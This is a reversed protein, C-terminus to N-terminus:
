DKIVDGSASRRRDEIPTPIPVMIQKNPNLSNVLEEAKARPLGFYNTIFTAIKMTVAKSVMREFQSFHTTDIEGEITAQSVMHAQTLGAQAAFVLPQIDRLLFERVKDIQKGITPPLQAKYKETRKRVMEDIFELESQEQVSETKLKEVQADFSKTPRYFFRSKHKPLESDRIFDPNVELVGNGIVSEPEAYRRDSGSMSPEPPMDPPTALTIRTLAAFLDAKDRDAKPDNIFAANEDQEKQQKFVAPARVKVKPKPGPKNKPIM